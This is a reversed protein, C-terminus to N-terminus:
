AGKFGSGVTIDSSARPGCLRQTNTHRELGLLCSLTQVSYDECVILNRKKEKKLPIKLFLETDMLNELSIEGDCIHRKNQSSLVGESAYKRSPFSLSPFLTVRIHSDVFYLFLVEDESAYRFVIGSSVAGDLVRSQSLVPSGGAAEPSNFDLQPLSAERQPTKLLSRLNSGASTPQRFPTGGKQLPTSPPLTKDFFEPSLLAGFHM